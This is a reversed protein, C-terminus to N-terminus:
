QEAAEDDDEIVLRHQLRIKDAHIRLHAFAECLYKGTATGASTHAQHPRSNSVCCAAHRPKAHLRERLKVQDEAPAM